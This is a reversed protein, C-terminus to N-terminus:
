KDFSTSSASLHEFTVKSLVDENEKLKGEKTNKEEIQRLIKECQKNYKLEKSHRKPKNLLYMIYSLTQYNNKLPQIENKLRELLEPPAMKNNIEETLKELKDNLFKYQNKVEAYYKVVDKVAM